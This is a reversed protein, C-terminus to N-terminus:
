VNSHLTADDVRRALISALAIYELTRIPDTQHVLDHAKPNRIGEIAGMFLYMFGEQENQDSTSQLGNLRLIPSKPSFVHSVLGRGGDLELGTKKKVKDIVVKYAELICPAYNGHNFLKECERRIDPHVASWEYVPEGQDSSPWRLGELIQAADRFLFTDPNSRWGTVKKIVSSELRSRYKDLFWEVKKIINKRTEIEAFGYPERVSQPKHNHSVKSQLDM